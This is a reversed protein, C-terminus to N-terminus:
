MAIDNAFQRIVQDPNLIRVLGPYSACTSRQDEPFDIKKGEGQDGDGQATASGLIVEARSGNRFQAYSM